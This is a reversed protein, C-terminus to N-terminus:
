QVEMDEIDETDEIDMKNDMERNVEAIIESAKENGVTENSFKVASIWSKSNRRATIRLAVRSKSGYGTDSDMIEYASRTDRGKVMMKVVVSDSGERIRESRM